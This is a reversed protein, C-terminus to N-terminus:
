KIETIEESNEIEVKIKSKALRKIHRGLARAQFTTAEPDLEISIVEIFGATGPGMGADVWNYLKLRHGLIPM